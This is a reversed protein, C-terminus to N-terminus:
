RDETVWECGHEIALAALFADPILSGRAGAVRCLDTFLAWHREGPALPVAAPASRLSEAFELARELPVPPSFIRPHTVVRLFGSLILDVIGVPERSAVVGDLWRRYAPHNPAGERFAYVLVNVDILLM